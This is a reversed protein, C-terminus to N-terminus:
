LFTVRHRVSGAAFGALRTVYRIWRRRAHGTAFVDPVHRVLWLWSKVVQRWPRRRYGAHRYTRFLPAGTLGYRWKQRAVGGLTARLRYHMLADPAYVLRFGRLQARWSLDVDEGGGGRFRETWGGVDDLVDRWVGCNASRAYPLFDPQDAMASIWSEDAVDDADCFLLLDGGAARIGANRAYGASATSDARVVRLDPVCERATHVLEMGHDVSGNDVVVLEWEGRYDQGALAALQAALTGASNHVPLVVSVLRPATRPVPPASPVGVDGRRIVLRPIGRVRTGPRLGGRRDLFERRAAFCRPGHFGVRATPPPLAVEDVIGDPRLRLEGWRVADAGAELLAVVHALWNPHPEDSAALLCVYPATSHAVGSGAPVVTVGAPAPELPDTSEVIVHTPRHTQTLLAAPLRGPPRGPLVVVDVAPRGPVSRPVEVSAHEWSEEPAWTM